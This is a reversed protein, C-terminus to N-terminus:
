DVDITNGERNANEVMTTNIDEEHLRMQIQLPTPDKDLKFKTFHNFFVITGIPLGISYSMELLYRKTDKEGLVYEYIMDFVSGVSADENFSMITFAAGFFVIMCVFVVKIAEFIKHNKSPPSYEIIFDQEGVSQIISDPYIKQIKEIVYLVSFIYNKKKDERIKYVVCNEIQEKMKSDLCSIKACDKVYVVKEEVKTNRDLKIYIISNKMGKVM